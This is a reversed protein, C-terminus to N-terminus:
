SGAATVWVALIVWSNDVRGLGLMSVERGEHAAFCGPPDLGRRTAPPQPRLGRGLWPCGPGGAGAVRGEPSPWKSTTLSPPTTEVPM